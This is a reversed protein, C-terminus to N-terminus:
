GNIEVELIEEIMTKKNVKNMEAELDDIVKQREQRQKEQKYEEEFLAELRKQKDEVTFL